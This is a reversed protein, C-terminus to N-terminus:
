RGQAQNLMYNAYSDSNSSSGGGVPVREARGVEPVGFVKEWLGRRAWWPTNAAKLDAVPKLVQKYDVPPTRLLESNQWDSQDPASEKAGEQVSKMSVDHLNKALEQADSLHSAVNAKHYELPIDAAVHSGVNLAEAPNMAGGAAASLPTQYYPEAYRANGELNGTWDSSLKGTVPDVMGQGLYQYTNAMAYLPLSAKDSIKGASGLARLVLKTSVPDKALAAKIAVKPVLSPLSGLIGLKGETKAAQSIPYALPLAGPITMGPVLSSVPYEEFYKSKDEAPRWQPNHRVNARDGSDQQNAHQAAWQESLPGAPEAAQQLKQEPAKPIPPPPAAQEVPKAAPGQESPASKTPAKSRLKALQSLIFARSGPDVAAGVGLGAAAGALGAKWGPKKGTVARYGLTSAGAGAGALLGLTLLTRTQEASLPM